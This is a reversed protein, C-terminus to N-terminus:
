IRDGSRFTLPEFGSPSVKEQAEYTKAAYCSGDRVECAALRQTASLQCAKVAFGPLDSCIGAFKRERHREGRFRTIVMQQGATM